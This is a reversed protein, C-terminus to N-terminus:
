TEADPALVIAVPVCVSPDSPMVRVLVRCGVDLKECVSAPVCTLARRPTGDLLFALELRGPGISLLKRVVTAPVTTGELQARRCRRRQCVGFVDIALVWATLWVAQIMSIVVRPIAHGRGMIWAVIWMGAVMPYAFLRYGLLRGGGPPTHIEEYVGESNMRQVRWLPLATQLGDGRTHGDVREACRERHVNCGAPRM